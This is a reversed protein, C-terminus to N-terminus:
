GVLQVGLAILAFCAAVWMIEASQRPVVDLPIRPDAMLEPTLIVPEPKSYQPILGWAAVAGGILGGLHGWNDIGPASLGFIFNIVIIVLMNQLVARGRSGFQDRYRLFYIVLAGVLGFIAGSAGASLNPVFAYSALSGTLGAIFYIAVFRAHGFLGEVQPGLFYLAYLNFLLHMVGIHLFMATLLRWVQGQAILGNDKAGFLTLIYSNETGNWIGAILYGAVIMALFVLVNTGILIQSVLPKAQKVYFLIRAQRPLPAAQSPATESGQPTNIM